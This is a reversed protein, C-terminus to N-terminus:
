TRGRRLRMGLAGFRPSQALLVALVVVAKVVLNFEAPLGSLLIGTNMSQIILAGVVALLISFRGGLLSTGGIVVALIADLELWLGANNADAGLIDAASLLGAVAACIGSWTYVAVTMGRTDIGALRSARANGGTAEVMLGLATGRVLVLTVLTAAVTVVVAAPVGAVSGGGFWALSHSSFTRIRGGTILQAVGRGAVMLILTAVIPQIKLWAVLIGNWVGCAVGVAVVALLTAALPQTDALSAAVAGSIAMVAGVSLDIGGTAIVLVMGLSLMAVPAGHDLVDILSGFLRGGMLGVHFFGPSAVRDLLLVAALASVQALGRRPIRLRSRAGRAQTRQTTASM